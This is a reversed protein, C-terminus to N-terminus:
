KGEYLLNHKGLHETISSAPSPRLFNFSFGGFTGTDALKLDM